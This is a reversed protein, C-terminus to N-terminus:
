VVSRSCARSFDMTSPKSPWSLAASSARMRTSRASSALSSAVAASAVRVIAAASSHTLLCSSDRM